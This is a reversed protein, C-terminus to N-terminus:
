FALAKSSNPSMACIGMICYGSWGLLTNRVLDFDIWNSPQQGPRAALLQRV